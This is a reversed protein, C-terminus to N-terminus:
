NNVEEDEESDEDKKIKELVMNAMEKAIIQQTAAPCNQLMNMATRLTSDIDYWRGKRNDDLGSGVANIIDEVAEFKEDEINHEIIIKILNLAIRIQTEDDTEELTKVAQSLVPDKDYWRRHQNTYEEKM